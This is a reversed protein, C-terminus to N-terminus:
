LPNQFCQRTTVCKRNLYSCDTLSLQTWSITSVDTIKKTGKQVNCFGLQFGAYNGNCYGQELTLPQSGQPPKRIGPRLRSGNLWFERFIRESVWHIPETWGSFNRFLQELKQPPGSKGTPGTPNQNLRDRGKFCLFLRFCLLLIENSSKSSFCSLKIAPRHFHVTFHSISAAVLTFILPLSFCFALVFVYLM